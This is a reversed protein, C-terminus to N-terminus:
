IEAAHRVKWEPGRYAALDKMLADTFAARERRGAAPPARVAAQEPVFLLEKVRRVPSPTEPDLGKIFLSMSWGLSKVRSVIRELGPSGPSSFVAVHLSRRGPLEPKWEADTWWADALAALVAPRSEETYSRCEKGPLSLMVDIRRGLLLVLLSACSEVLRDLYDAAMGRPVLPNATCDLVFLIRSEPPPVEEGIRLFLENLHAFVKWNLRRVDDGPYYKRAELLEESRRRRPAYVASDEAQEM